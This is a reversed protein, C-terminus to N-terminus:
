SLTKGLTLARVERVGASALAHACAAITAGTTIVDDVLVVTRGCVREIGLVEFSGHVNKARAAAPLSHQPATNKIKRLVFAKTPVGCLKSMARALLVSQNYKRRLLQIRHMPVPVLFDADELIKAGRWCMWRAYEEIHSLDDCFKLRLVMNKSHTDYVFVSEVASVHTLPGVHQMERQLGVDGSPDHSSHLFKITQRCISCITEARKIEQQCNACMRPFFVGVVKEILNGLM